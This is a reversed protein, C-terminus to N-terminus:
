TNEFIRIKIEVRTGAPEDNEFLDTITVYNNKGNKNYLEIREATIDIGYSQHEPKNLEKLQQAKARGVGNDTVTYKICDNQLAASVTLKRNGTEKNLLGHHIANEVFPQVILPPVKYDSQLLENDAKLEYEFKNNSRFQEMQLYLQLSEFDKQFPVVNNKSSDLVNRILKAFRALYTTARDKQNTQILNDIANLSNFIFHPNMQARFAMMETETIKQKMEAEHRIVSIRKRVAWFIAGALLLLSAAIFWGTQWFPPKIIFKLKENVPGWEGTQLKAKVKFSYSGPSLSSFNATVTEGSMIWDKDAGEMMYAYNTIANDSYNPAAFEININKQSHNLTITKGADPLQFGANNIKLGNIFTNLNRKRKQWVDSKVIVLRDNLGYFLRNSIIDYYQIYAFAWDINENKTALPIVENSQRNLLNIGAQTSLFLHGDNTKSIALINESSLGHTRSIQLLSDTKYNYKVLGLGSTNGAWISNGIVAIANLGTITNLEKSKSDKPYYHWQTKASEFCLINKSNVSIAWINGSDDETIRSIRSATDFIKKNGSTYNEFSVLKETVTNYYALSYGKAGYYSIWVNSKSDAFLYHIAAKQLSAPLLTFRKFKKTKTDFEFVGESTGAWLRNKRDECLRHISGTLTNGSNNKYQVVSLTQPNMEVLGDTNYAFYILGNGAKVIGSCYNSFNTISFPLRIQTIPSEGLPLQVFGKTETGVWINDNDNFATICNSLSGGPMDYFGNDINKYEMTEPNVSYVSQGGCCILQNNYRVIANICRSEDTYPIDFLQYKLSSEKLNYKALGTGWGSCFLWEKEEDYYISRIVNFYFFPYNFPNNNKNYVQKKQVDIIHIGTNDSPAWIRGTKDQFWRGRYVIIGNMSKCWPLDTLCYLFDLNDSFVDIKGSHNVYILGANDKFLSRVLINSQKKLAAVKIKDNEFRNTYTNFVSLGSSTAILLQGPKYQLIDYVFNGTLSNEEGPNNFFSLFYKGDFRNMGEGTGIWLFGRDDKTICHVLKNSLGQGTSFFRIKKEFSQGNSCLCQIFLIILLGYRM